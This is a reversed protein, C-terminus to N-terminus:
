AMIARTQRVHCLVNQECLATHTPSRFFSLRQDIPEPHLQVVYLCLPSTFALPNPQFSAPSIGLLLTLWCPVRADVCGGRFDLVRSTRSMCRPYIFRRVYTCRRLNLRAGSGAWILNYPLLGRRRQPRGETGAAETGRGSAARWAQYQGKPQSTTSPEVRVCLDPLVRVCFGDVVVCLARSSGWCSCPQPAPGYFRTNSSAQKSTTEVLRCSSVPSSRGFCRLICPAVRSSVAQCWAVRVTPSTRRTSSAKFHTRGLM